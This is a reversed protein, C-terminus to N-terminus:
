RNGAQRQFPKLARALHLPLKAPVGNLFATLTTPALQRLAAKRAVEVVKEESAPMTTATSTRAFETLWYLNLMHAHAQLGHM